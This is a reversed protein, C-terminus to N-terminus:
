ESQGTEDLGPQHVLDPLRGAVLTGAGLEILEVGAGAPDGADVDAALCHSRGDGVDGTLDDGTALLGSARAARASEDALYALDGPPHGAVGTDLPLPDCMGGEARGPHEIGGAAAELVGGVERAPAPLAQDPGDAVLQARRYAELVVDVEGRQRLTLVAEAAVQAVEDEEPGARADAQPDDDVPSQVAAGAARRALDAIQGQAVAIRVVTGVAATSQELLRRAHAADHAAGAREAHARRQRGPRDEGGGAAAVRAGDFTTVASARVM